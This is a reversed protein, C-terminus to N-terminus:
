KVRLQTGVKLNTWDTVQPNLQTIESVSGGYKEALMSRYEGKRVSHYKENSQVNRVVQQQGKNLPQAPPTYSSNAIRIEELKISYKRGNVIDKDASTSFSLIIANHLAGRGVYTVPQRSDHLYQLNAIDQAANPGAIVGSVSVTVPNRKVHDTINVGEEVPHDTKTSSYSIDESAISIYLDNIKAM